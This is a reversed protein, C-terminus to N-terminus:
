CKDDVNVNLMAGSMQSEQKIHVLQGQVLSIYTHTYSTYCVASAKWVHRGCLWVYLM